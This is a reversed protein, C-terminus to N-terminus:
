TLPGCQSDMCLLGKNLCEATDTPGSIFLDVTYVKDVSVNNSIVEYSLDQLQAGRAQLVHLHPLVVVLNDLRKCVSGAHFLQLLTGHKM